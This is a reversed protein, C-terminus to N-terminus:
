YEEEYGIKRILYNGTDGVYFCQRSEDYVISEPSNFRAELRLDGDNYGSTGNNGRGAYTEVRGQPTLKRIAHNGKDCFYFDYEDELGENEPNKVFVGQMPWNLRASSGVGDAYGSTAAAGCVLYPITFTKRERDYETRMIYHRESEVLYAYDGTPHIILLFHVGAYPNQFVTTLAGTEFDYRQVDGARFRTFYMEGNVPHTASTKVGRGLCIDNRTNFGSARTFLFLGTAADSGQDRSVIMDGDLKWNVSSVNDINTTFTSVYRNEFDIRRTGKTQCAVYLHNPNQNDFSLWRMNQFSGCDEFPGDKRVLESEKEVYKGLFTSVLLKKEYIFHSVAVTRTIEEGDDGLIIIEIEGSYAGVPVMCHLAQNKVGVVKAERGGITVKIKSIDNGFNDGYLILRTGLGGEKPTFDSILVPKDPDFHDGQEENEDKCSVCLVILILLMQWYRNKMNFEIQM